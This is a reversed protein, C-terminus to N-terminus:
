KDPLTVISAPRYFWDEGLKTVFHYGHNSLLEHLERSPREIGLCGFRYEDFPFTRMIEYEFGEVDLSLYDIEEPARHKRLVAALSVAEKVYRKQATGWYSNTSSIDFPALNNISRSLLLNNRAQPSLMAQGRDFIEIM